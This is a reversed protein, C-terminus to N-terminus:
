SNVRCNNDISLHLADTLLFRPADSLDTTEHVVVLRKRGYKKLRVVKTLAWIQWIEGNRCRVNKPRFSEPHEQRPSSDPVAEFPAFSNLYQEYSRTIQGFDLRTELARCGESGAAM